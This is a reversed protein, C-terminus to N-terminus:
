PFILIPQHLIVPCATFGSSAISPQAMRGVADGDRQMVEFGAIPHLDSIVGNAQRLGDVLPM